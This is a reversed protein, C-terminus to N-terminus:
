SPAPLSGERDWQSVGVSRQHVLGDELCQALAIAIHPRFKPGHQQLPHKTRYQKVPLLDGRAPDGKGVTTKSIAVGQKIIWQPTPDNPNSIAPAPKHRLPAGTVALSARTQRVRELAEAPPPPIRGRRKLALREKLMAATAIIGGGTSTKAAM